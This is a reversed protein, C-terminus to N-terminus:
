TSRSSAAGTRTPFISSDRPSSSAPMTSSSISRRCRRSCRRADPRPRSTPPSAACRAGPVAKALAAVAADVKAKTRGNVVVDAGTAALGKAIAHGIGATSGTVLATKGSLDIKMFNEKLSSPSIPLTRDSDCDGPKAIRVERWPSAECTFADLFRGAAARRSVRHRAPQHDPRHRFSQRRVGEIRRELEDKAIDLPIDCIARYARRSYKKRGWEIPLTPPASTSRDRAIQGDALVVARPSRLGTRRPRPRLHRRPIPFRAVEIIPGADVREVM